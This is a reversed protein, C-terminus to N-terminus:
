GFAKKEQKKPDQDGKRRLACHKAPLCLFADVAFQHLLEVLLQFTLGVFQGGHQRFQRGDGVFVPLVVDQVPIEILIVLLIEIHHYPILVLKVIKEGPIDEKGSFDAGDADIRAVVTQKIGGKGSRLSGQVVSRQSLRQQVVIQLRYFIFVSHLHLRRDCFFVAREIGIVAPEAQKHCQIKEALVCLIFLQQPDVQVQVIHRRNESFATQEAVDIQSIGPIGDNRRRAAGSVAREM